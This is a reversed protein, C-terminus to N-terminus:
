AFSDVCDREGYYLLQVPQAMVTTAANPYHALKRDCTLGATDPSISGYMRLYTHIYAVYMCRDDTSMVASGWNSLSLYNVMPSSMLAVTFNM